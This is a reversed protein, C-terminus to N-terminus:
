GLDEGYPSGAACDALHSMSEAYAYEEALQAQLMDLCANRASLRNPGDATIPRLPGREFACWRGDNGQSIIM